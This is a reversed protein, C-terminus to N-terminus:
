LTGIPHTPQAAPDIQATFGILRRLEAFHAADTSYSSRGYTTTRERRVQFRIITEADHTVRRNTGYNVPVRSLLLFVHKEQLWRAIFRYLRLFNANLKAQIQLILANMQGTRNGPVQSFVRAFALPDSGQTEAIKAIYQGIDPHMTVYTTIHGSQRTHRAAYSREYSVPIIRLALRSRLGHHFGHRYQAAEPAM